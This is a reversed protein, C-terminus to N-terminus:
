PKIKDIKIQLFKQRHGKKLAYDKRRRHKQITIKNGKIEGLISAIVRAGKVVPRGVKPGDEIDGVLLVRDFEISQAKPELDKRQVELVQGEEVRYQHSGDSIIAYM